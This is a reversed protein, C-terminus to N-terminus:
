GAPEDKIRTVLLLIQGYLDVTKQHTHYRDLRNCCDIAFDVASSRFVLRIHVRVDDTGMKCYDRRQVLVLEYEVQSPSEVVACMM